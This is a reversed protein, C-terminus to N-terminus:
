QNNSENKEETLIIGQEKLKGRLDNNGTFLITKIGLEQAPILNMEKDDIFLCEGAKVGIKELILRYVEKNPKRIKVHHSFVSSHFNEMLRENILYKYSIPWLDSLIALKYNNKLNKILNLLDKNLIYNEKYGEGFLKQLLDVSIKSNLSIRKLCGEKGEVSEEILEKASNEWLQPDIKLNECMYSHIDRECLYIVGILDFIIVKIM